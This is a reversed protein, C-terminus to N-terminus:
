NEKQEATTSTDTMSRNTYDDEDVNNNGSIQGLNINKSNSYEIRPQPEETVISTALTEKDGVSTYRYLIGTPLIYDFIDDILATDTLDMPVEVLILKDDDSDFYIDVDFDINQARLLINITDEIAKVSGKNRVLYVFSSCIRVLDENTYEHKSEFGVSSTLLNILNHSSLTSVGKGVLDTNTKIYNFLIEILRGVYSFDRSEKYYVVPVLNEVKM